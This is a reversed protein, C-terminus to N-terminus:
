RDELIELRIGRWSVIQGCHLAHDMELLETLERLFSTGPLNILEQMRAELWSRKLGIRSFSAWSLM